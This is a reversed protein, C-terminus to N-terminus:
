GAHLEELTLMSLLKEKDALEIDDPVSQGTTFYSLKKDPRLISLLPGITNTEDM